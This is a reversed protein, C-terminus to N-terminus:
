LKLSFSAGCSCGQEANPNNVVQFSSRILEETFDVTSNKLFEVSDTDTIIKVGDKEIVVDEETMNKDLEFKYQFGSCGGGEVSIRLFLGKEDATIKKLREVCRNTINVSDAAIKVESNAESSFQRTLLICARQRCCQSCPNLLKQNVQQLGLYRSISRLSQMKLLGSVAM